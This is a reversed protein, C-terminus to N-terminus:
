NFSNKQKKLQPDHLSKSISSSFTELLNFSVKSFDYTFMSKDYLQVRIKCDNRTWSIVYSLAHM